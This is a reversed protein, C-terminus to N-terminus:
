SSPEVVAPSVPQEAALVKARAVDKIGILAGAGLLVAGYGAGLDSWDPVAGRWVLAYIFAASFSLVAWGAMVRALEWHQNGVNSFLDRLLKM